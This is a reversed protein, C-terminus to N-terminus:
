PNPPPQDSRTEPPPKEMITEWNEGLFERRSTRCHASCRFLGTGPPRLTVATLDPHQLRELRRRDPHPERVARNRQRHGQLAVARRLRRTRRPRGQRGREPRRRGRPHQLPELRRCNPHPERLAHNRQRHGQLAM